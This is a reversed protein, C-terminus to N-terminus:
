LSEGQTVPIFDVHIDELKFAELSQIPELYIESACEAQFLKLYGLKTLELISLFIVVLEARSLHLSFLSKFEIRESLRTKIKDVIEMIKEEITFEEGQVEHVPRNLKRLIDQFALALEYIGVEKLGTTPDFDLDIPAVPLNVKFVDENLYPRNQLTQAAMKYQEYELLRRALEERPDVGEAAEEPEPLPLMMKSKIYILTAAMVIFESALDVDLVRMAGMWDLYQETIKSIEINRIDMENRRILYLLLDLPGEFTDLRVLYSM